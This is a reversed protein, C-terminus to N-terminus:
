KGGKEIRLVIEQFRPDQCFDAMDPHRELVHLLDPTANGLVAIARDREGLAEYTLAANEIVKNDGPSSKLAQVIEAEARRGDGLRAACYAVFGRPFGQAPNEALSELALNMAKRYSTRAAPTQGLRRYSDALNEVNVYDSPSMAVAREYYDVAEADRKQYARIAGLNNLALATERLKLAQMLVKEAEEYEGRDMLTAGLNSYANVIGPAREIVRRFQEAAESYRGRNYFFVGQVEYPWFYAPDLEIAGNYAEIAKDPMDVKDYVSAIGLLADVNRPELDRARRYDELAKEYQGATENLLGAALRVRASDPNLSEAVQLAQQAAELSSHDRSAEFKAVLADALAAPPLPSRPDLRAAEQFLVIADEFTQRDNRLLYLGKDYPATAETSLVEPVAAVQLQLALSVDSALASPLAGITAESYHTSFDRLHAGTGLDIVSGEAVYDTGERRLSIRLAHTAHFVKIAQDPTQVATGGNGGPPIVVLTRRASPLHRLRDSVDQLAGEGVMTAESPGQFPLIALRVNAPMFRDMFFDTIRERVPPMLAALVLVGAVIFPAKRIPRKKLRATVQSADTPRAGPSESLCSLIVHDWRPDLGKVRSTPAPPRKMRSDLTKSDFPLRGTVLEYLMVGLAYIDSANSARNGRWLEPAMYDPTGGFEEPSQHISSALGFDTIVPRVSGDENHCLIINGSKLDGHVIGSRHAESLGACLQRAINLAEVSDLKGTKKIHDSLTEGQLFEMTLFDVEGNETQTTHIQNVLCINPHRVKLAGELEPSLLRQFGPKASKIAIRLNRKRDIAEYVVGMGGEGIARVIEFRGEIVEGPQFPRGVVTHAILPQKLFTGLRDEWEITDAIERYLDTDPECALRVFSEREAPSRRLAESVIRMVQEDREPATEV